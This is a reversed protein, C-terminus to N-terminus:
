VPACSPMASRPSASAMPHLSIAQAPRFHCRRVAGGCYHHTKDKRDDWFLRVMRKRMVRATIVRFSVNINGCVGM